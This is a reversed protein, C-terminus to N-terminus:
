EGSGFKQHRLWTRNTPRCPCLRVYRHAVHAFTRGCTVDGPCEHPEFGTDECHTCESKWPETRAAPLAKRLSETVTHSAADFWQASTPFFGRRREGTREDTVGHRAIDTASAKVAEIPLDKLAEYYSRITMEDADTWRLQMGLIAFITGFERETMSSPQMLSTTM